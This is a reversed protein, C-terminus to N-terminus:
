EISRLREMAEVQVVHGHVSVTREILWALAGAGLDDGTLMLTVRYQGMPPRWGPMWGDTTPQRQPGDPTMPM